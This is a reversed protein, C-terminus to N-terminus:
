KAFSLLLVYQQRGAFKENFTKKKSGPFNEKSSFFFFVRFKKHFIQPADAIALLFFFFSL